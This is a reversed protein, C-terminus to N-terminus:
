IISQCESYAIAFLISFPRDLVIQVSGKNLCWNELLIIVYGYSELFVKNKKSFSFHPIYKRTDISQCIFEM